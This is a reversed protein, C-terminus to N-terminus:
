NHLCQRLDFDWISSCTEDMKLNQESEKVEKAATLIDTHSGVVVEITQRQVEQVHKNYGKNFAIYISWLYFIGFFALFSCLLIIKAKIM